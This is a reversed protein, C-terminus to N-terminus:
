EMGKEIKDKEKDTFVKKSNDSKTLWQCNNPDYNGNHDIRDITLNDSYGNKLSWDYFHKFGDKGLWLDCVIIGKGGYLYYEETKKNYCRQKMNNYIIYLRDNSKGHRFNPNNEKNRKKRQEIAYCGCSKTKGCILNRAPIYKENGCKCKCLWYRQENKSVFTDTVYLYGFSRGSLNYKKSEYKRTNLLTKLKKM